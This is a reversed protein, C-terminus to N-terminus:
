NSDDDEDEDEDDEDDLDDEEDDFDDEEGDFDDDLDAHPYERPVPAARQRRAATSRRDGVTPLLEGPPVEALTELPRPNHANELTAECTQSSPFGGAFAVAAGDLDPSDPGQGPNATQQGDFWM